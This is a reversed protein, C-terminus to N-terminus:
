PASMTAQVGADGLARDGALSCVALQNGGVRGARHWARVTQVLLDLTPVLVLVREHAALTAAAGAAVWTKGTGCAM